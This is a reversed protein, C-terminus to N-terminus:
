FIVKELGFIFAILATRIWMGCREQRWDNKPQQLAIFTALALNSKLSYIVPKNYHTLVTSAVNYQLKKLSRAM